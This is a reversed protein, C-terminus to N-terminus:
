QYSVNIEKYYDQEPIFIAFSFFDKIKTYYFSCAQM